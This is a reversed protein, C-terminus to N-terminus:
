TQDCCVIPIMACSISRKPHSVLRQISVRDVGHEFVFRFPCYTSFSSTHVLM